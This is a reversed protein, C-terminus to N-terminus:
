GAQAKKMLSELRSSKAMLSELQETMQIVRAAAEGSPPDQEKNQKPATPKRSARIPEKKRPAPETKRPAPRPGASKEKVDDIMAKLLHFQHLTIREEATLDRLIDFAELKRTVLALTDIVRDLQQGYSAVERTIRTELGPNSSASQASPNANAFGFPQMCQQLWTTWLQMVPNLAQAPNVPLTEKEMFM